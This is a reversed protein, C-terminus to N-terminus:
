THFGCDCLWLGYVYNYIWIVYIIDSLGFHCEDWAVNWVLVSAGGDDQQDM